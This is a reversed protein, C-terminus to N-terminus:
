KHQAPTAGELGEIQANQAIIPPGQRATITTNKLQIGSANRVTLGKLASIRVNELVVDKIESEPLGLIIGASDPCTATFNRIRINRYLPTKDSIAQAADKQPVSSQIPDGKSNNMYYSTFTIAPDVNKMTIDSYSINEVLGGRGRQSNIRIGNETNEFTCNRVTVNRVGGGTESGISMGHGHLFTCDAVTIDECAFERGAVKKGAKIAVNDDGVDILCKTILVRRCASPDIADTNASHAPATVTVNTVVVDECETPVFHFKPSNQLTIDQLRVNKCGTLVILNPRPLTYGPTKRRAEEVPVWWKGGAGDIVGPGLIAVDSLNKGVIFPIYTGPRDAAFDAPDDTAQLKAGAELQLTTRTRLTIPKTLYTGVTLHVTGGGAQGCEDLAKQIASTDLTKGDGKAGFGRVDFTRASSQPDSRTDPPRPEDRFCRKLEPVARVLEEVVLRAFLVSGQANLHTNDIENTGKRPSFAYCGERGTMECLELSRTHLDVLPVKKDSAIKQVEDAYATLSSKIRGSDSKDWQRRTLPTVLVPKAGQARADDVYRTMDSIFTPMDTSRGPKGPENNHGFQILYYDGKLALANTWRGEKMFSMSSRGGQATNICEAQDTLFQKFGRGWGAQDTVTSDGVLVIRVRHGTPALASEARLWAPHSLLLSGLVSIFSAIISQILSSKNM